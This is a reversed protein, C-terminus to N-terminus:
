GVFFDDNFDVIWFDGNANAVKRFNIISIKVSTDNQRIKLEVSIRDTDVISVSVDVVAFGSMFALDNKIATEIKIRGSSNLTITNILNETLSNFQKSQDSPMLLNNGWFDFSESETVKSKTIFGPNGGFMALYPMNEISNVGALDNGRLQLDGGNGTEVVALDFM